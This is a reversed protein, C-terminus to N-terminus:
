NSSIPAHYLCSSCEVLDPFKIRNQGHMTTLM